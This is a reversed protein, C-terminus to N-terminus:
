WNTQQTDKSQLLGMCVQPSHAKNLFTYTLIMDASINGGKPPILIEYAARHSYDRGQTQKSNDRDAQCLKKRDRVWVWVGSRPESEAAGAREGRKRQM